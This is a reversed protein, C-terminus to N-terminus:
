CERSTGYDSLSDSGRGEAMPRPVLPALGLDDAITAMADIVFQIHQDLEVGLEEAGRRIDERDVAAAFSKQKMKKRVSAATLGVLREPRV